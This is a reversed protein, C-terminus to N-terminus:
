ALFSDMSAFLKNLYPIRPRLSLYLNSIDLSQITAPTGKSYSKGGIAYCAELDSAPHLRLSLDDTVPDFGLTSSIAVPTIAPDILQFHNVEALFWAEVEMTALIFEVSILGPAVGNLLGSELKPIDALTFTPRVDRLGIIKEYGAADLGVHEKKIRTAVQHDGGCDYILVYFREGTIAKHAKITTYSVPVSKGGQIRKQEIVVNNPGALEEIIREILLVETLGEVFVALKRM